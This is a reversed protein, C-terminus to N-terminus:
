KVAKSCVLNPRLTCLRARVPTSSRPIPFSWCPTPRRRRLRALYKVPTAKLKPPCEKCCTWVDRGEVDVSIPKGMSGLKATTVPCIKQEEVTLSAFRSVGTKPKPASALRSKFAPTEAIPTKLIVTAYMNPLLKHGPNKVDFRVSVTRTSPELEPDIFAVKGPFVEGPYADVTAEISQGIRILSLQDEYVKAKIWVDHLDAIEFMDAGEAVTQGERVNLKVVHGSIPSLIPLRFGAAKGERLIADIQATAIGWRKLKEASLEM